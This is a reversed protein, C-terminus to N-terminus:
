QGKQERKRIRSIQNSISAPSRHVTEELISRSINGLVYSRVLAIEDDSWVSLERRQQVTHATELITQQERYTSPRRIQNISSRLEVIRNFGESRTHEGSAIIELCEKWIAFAEQKVGILPNCDFFKAIKSCDTIASVTYRCTASENRVRTRPKPFYISGSEFFDKVFELTRLDKIQMEIQFIPRVHYGLRCSNCKVIAITFNGEGCVLGCIFGSLWEQSKTTTNM